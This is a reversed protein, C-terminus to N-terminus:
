ADGNPGQAPFHFLVRAARPQEDVFRTYSVADRYTSGQIGPELRKKRFPVSRCLPTRHAIEASQRPLLAVADPEAVGSQFPAVTIEGARKRTQAIDYSNQMRMLTHMSLGLAEEIRLAIHPSLHGRETHWQKAYIMM